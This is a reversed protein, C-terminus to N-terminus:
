NISRTVRFSANYRSTFGSSFFVISSSVWLMRVLAALLYIFHHAVGVGHINFWQGEGDQDIGCRHTELIGLLQKFTALAAQWQLSVQVRRMPAPGSEAPKPTPIPLKGCRCGQKWPHPKRKREADLPFIKVDDDVCIIQAALAVLESRSLEVNDHMWKLCLGAFVKMDKSYGDPLTVAAAESSAGTADVSSADAGGSAWLSLRELTSNADGGVAALFCQIRQATSLTSVISVGIPRGTQEAEVIPLCSRATASLLAADHSLQVVRSILEDKADTRSLYETFDVVPAQWPSPSDADDAGSGGADGDEDAASERTSQGWILALHLTLERVSPLTGTEWVSPLRRDDMMASSNWMRHMVWDAADAVSDDDGVVVDAHTAMATTYTERQIEDSYM